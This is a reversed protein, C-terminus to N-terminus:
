CSIRERWASSWPRRRRRLLHRLVVLVEGVGVGRHGAVGAVRGPRGGAEAAMQLHGGVRALGHEVVFAEGRAIVGAVVKLNKAVVDVHEADVAGDGAMADRGRARGAGDEDTRLVGVAVPEVVRLLGNGCRTEGALGEACENRVGNAGFFGLLAAIAVDGGGVVVVGPHGLEQKCPVFKMFKM